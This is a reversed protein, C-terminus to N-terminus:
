RDGVEWRLTVYESTELSEAELRLYLGNEAQHWDVKDSILHMEGDTSQRTGERRQLTRGQQHVAITLRETARYVHHRWFLEDVFAGGTIVCGYRGIDGPEISPSINYSFRMHGPTEHEPEIFSQHPSFQVPEVAIENHTHKFWIGRPIRNVARETLNLVTYAYRVTGHGEDNIEISIDTALEVLSGQMKAKSRLVSGSVNSDVTWAETPSEALLRGNPQVPPADGNEALLEPASWRPFMRELVRCHRAHPLDKLDGALWRHFQARSPPASDIGLEDAMREYETTFQDHNQLHRQQLLSKLRTPM